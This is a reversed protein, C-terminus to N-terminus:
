IEGSSEECLEEVSMDFRELMIIHRNKGLKEIFYPMYRSYLPTEAFESFSFVGTSNLNEAAMETCLGACIGTLSQSSDAKLVLTETKVGGNKYGNIEIVFAFHENAKISYMRSMEVLKKASGNKDSGFTMAARKLLSSTESGGFSIYHTGEAGLRRRVYETERDSYSTMDGEGVFPIEAGRLQRVNEQSSSGAVGELYDYAAGFSFVGSMSSIHTFSSISDFGEAAYVALPASFGPLAGASYICNGGIAEYGQATGADVLPTSKEACLRATETGSFVAAPVLNLVIDNRSIFEGLATKDNVDLDTLSVNDMGCSFMGCSATISRSAAEIAFKETEALYGLAYRGVSGAGGLVGIRIMM